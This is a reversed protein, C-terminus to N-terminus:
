SIMKLRNLLKIYIDKLGDVFKDVDYIPRKVSVIGVGSSMLTIKIDKDINFYLTKVHYEAKFGLDRIVKLAKNLDISLKTPPNLFYIGSGDRACSAEVMPIEIKEVRKEEGCVQCKPDRAIDVTYTSLDELDFLLLKSCLKPKRGMIIRIAESAALSAIVTTVSPHIGVVACTPLEVDLLGGYFCELCPTEYPVITSLNGYVELASAFIYPVGGEVAARNVIYRPPMSDLGDVVVDIDKILSDIVEESVTSPHPDVYLDPNERELREKAVFVKPMGVDRPSYLYQRHLDTMSVIDRDVIRLYGIGMRALIIALPSGIGGLGVILVRGSRIKRQGDLGIHSLVIQRAFRDHFDVIGSNM